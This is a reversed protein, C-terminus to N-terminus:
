DKSPSYQGSFIDKLIQILEKSSRDKNFDDIDAGIPGDAAFNITIVSPAQDKILAIIKEGDSNGSSYKSLKGDVLAIRVGEETLKGILAVAEEMNTAVLCTIGNPSFVYKICSERLRDHDEFFALKKETKSM